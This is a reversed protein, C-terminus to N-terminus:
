EMFVADIAQTRTCALRRTSRLGEFQPYGDSEALLMADRLFSSKRHRRKIGSLGNFNPSVPQSDFAHVM